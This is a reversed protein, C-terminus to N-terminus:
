DLKLDQAKHKKAYKEPNKHHDKVTAMAKDLSAQDPRGTTPYLLEEAVAQGFETDAAFKRDKYTRGKSRRYISEYNDISRAMHVLNVTDINKWTTPYKEAFAAHKDELETKPMGAAIDEKIVRIMELQKRRFDLIAQEEKTLDM